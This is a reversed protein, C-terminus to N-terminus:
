RPFGKNVGKVKIVFKTECLLRPKHCAFRGVFQAREVTCLLEQACPFFNSSHSLLFHENIFTLLVNTEHGGEACCPMFSNEIKIVDPCSEPGSFLSFPM